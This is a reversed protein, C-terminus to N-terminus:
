REGDVFRQLGRIVIKAQARTLHAAPNNLSPNICFIWVFKLPDASSHQVRIESDNSDRTRSYIAFGRETRELRKKKM